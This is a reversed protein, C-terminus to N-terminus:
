KRGKYRKAFSRNERLQFFNFRRRNPSLDTVHDSNPPHSKSFYKQAAERKGGDGLPLFPTDAVNLINIQVDTPM